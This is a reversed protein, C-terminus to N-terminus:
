TKLVPFDPDKERGYLKLYKNTGTQLFTEWFTFDMSLQSISKVGPPSWYISFLHVVFVPFVMFYFGLLTSGSVFLQARYTTYFILSSHLFQHTHFLSQSSM